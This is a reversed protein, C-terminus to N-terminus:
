RKECIDCCKKMKPKFRVQKQYGGKWVSEEEWPTNHENTLDELVTYDM